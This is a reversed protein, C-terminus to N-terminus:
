LAALAAYGADTIRVVISNGTPAPVFDVYGRRELRGLSEYHFTHVHDGVPELSLKSPAEGGMGNLDALINSMRQGIPANTNFM